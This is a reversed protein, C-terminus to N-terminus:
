GKPERAGSGALEPADRGAPSELIEVRSGPALRENGRVVVASHVNLSPSDVLALEREDALVQVGLRRAVGRTRPEAAATDPPSSDSVDDDIVFLMWDGTPGQSLADKPVIFGSGGIRRKVRVRLSEGVTAPPGDTPWALRLVQTSGGQSLASVREILRLRLTEGRYSGELTSKPTISAAVEPQAYAWIEPPGDSILELVPDGAAVRAGEEVLRASVRGAFPARVLHQAVTLEAAEIEAELGQVAAQSGDARARAEDREAESAVSGGAELLRASQAEAVKAEAAASKLAANLRLLEQAPVRDDLRALVAGRDVRQGERAALKVVRGAVEAGVASRQATRVEAFLSVEIDLPPRLPAVVTVRLAPAAPAQPLGKGCGIAFVLGIFALLHRGSARWM